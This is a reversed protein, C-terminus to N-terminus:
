LTQSFLSFALNHHLHLDQSLTTNTSINKCKINTNLTHELPTNLIGSHTNNITTDAGSPFLICSLRLIAVLYGCMQYFIRNLYSHIFGLVVADKREKVLGSVDGKRGLYM